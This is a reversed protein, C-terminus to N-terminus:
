ESVKSDALLSGLVPTTYAMMIFAHFAVTAREDSWKFYNVFYLVLVTYFIRCNM